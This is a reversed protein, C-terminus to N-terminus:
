RLRSGGFFFLYRGTERLLDQGPDDDVTVGLYVRDDYDRYIREVTATRGHSSRTSSTARPAPACSWRTAAGSVRGAMPVESEGRIDDYGPPPERHGNGREAGDGEPPDADEDPEQLHPARAPRADREPTATRGARDDRPGGPGARRDAAREADSLTQVHLLLAEEIETNDFLNGLSEPALEPHEPLMIAAGLM